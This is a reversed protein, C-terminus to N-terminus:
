ITFKYLINLGDKYQITNDLRATQGLPNQLKLGLSYEGSKEPKSVVGEISHTLLGRSNYDSPDTGYWEEPNGAECEAVTNGNSDVLVFSSKLNFGAGYGYNKLTLNLNIKEGVSVKM